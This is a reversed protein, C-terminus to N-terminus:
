INLALSINKAVNNAYHTMKISQKLTVTSVVASTILMVLALIGAFILRVIRKKRTLEKEIELLAKMRTNNYWIDNVHGPLM